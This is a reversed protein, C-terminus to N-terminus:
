SGARQLSEEFEKRITDGGAKKWEDRWVKLDSMPRRGTIIGFQYDDELQRLAAAKRINTDSILGQTPDPIWSQSAQEVYKQAATSEGKGPFYFVAESPQNLYSLNREDLVAGTVPQPNGDSDKTYHRGEIGFNMFLFEESGFPAGAYDLVRLLEAVRASDKGVTAPIAFIGFYGQQQYISPKGGSHGVPLLHALEIGAHARRFNGVGNDGTGFHSIYGGGLAGVKDTLFLEEAKSTWALTPADPHFVGAKWLKNLYTLSQEIEDTELANTLKGADARWNNPVGFMMHYWRQYIAAIAWKGNGSFAKFLEFLEDANKPPNSFGAKTAWDLRYVFGADSILLSLPKPVGYIAGEIACNKWAFTPVQALNPYAKIGDGALIDTLNTFAGEKITRVVSQAGQGPEIFMIDPMSGSAITTQLKDAYGQYPALTPKFEAGLRRNLEQWWQNAALAPPPAPYLIQFTTVPKGSTIPPNPVSKYPPNPYSEYAPGVGTVSSISAGPVSKPPTYSPLKGAQPVNSGGTTKGNDSCAALVGAGAVGLGLGVGLRLLGRRSLEQSMQM